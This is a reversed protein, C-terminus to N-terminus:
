LDFIEVKLYFTREEAPLLYDLRGQSRFSKQGVPWSNGPEIGLVYEGEGLMKWITVYYMEELLWTFSVGIGIKKNILKVEAEGKRKEYEGFFVREKFNSQPDLFSLIEEPKDKKAESDRPIFDPRPLFTVELEPSLLPYGFNLHSLYMLPIERYAENIITTFIEFSSNKHNMKIKRMMLYNENFIKAQRVKGSLSLIYDDGLWYTEKNIEESEISTIRGHLGHGESPPGVNLLGCTTLFGGFFLRKWEDEYESYYKGSTLYTPSVWVLPIGKYSLKGIDMGRDPLVELELGSTNYFRAVRMGRGKGDIEERLEIGAFQKEHGVRKLIEEKSLNSIFSMFVGGMM